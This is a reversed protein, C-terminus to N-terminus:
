TKSAEYEKVDKEIRKVYLDIDFKRRLGNSNMYRLKGFITRETWARDHKGFCWAVGAYGNPTNGDLFYFNNLKIATEYAEKYSKSWEIIKKCWYM